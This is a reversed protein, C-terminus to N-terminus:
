PLRQSQRCAWASGPRRPGAEEEEEEGGMQAQADRLGAFREEPRPKGRGAKKARERRATRADRRTARQRQWNPGAGDSSARGVAKAKACSDGAEGSGPAGEIAEPREGRREDWCDAQAQGSAIAEPREDM